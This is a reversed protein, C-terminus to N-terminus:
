SLGTNKKAVAILNKSVIKPRDRRGLEVLYIFNLIKFWVKRLMMWIIYKFRLKWKLRDGFISIESFGGFQLIHNLSWETFGIEHTFSIYRSVSASFFCMNPTTVILKGEGKLADRIAQLYDITKEKPFHEIVQNLTIVDYYGKKMNLFDELDSIHVINPIGYKKSIEVQPAGLEVGEINKYGKERLFYLFYGWGCGVDLIRAEKNEPLLPLFDDEYSEFVRKNVAAFGKQKVDEEKEWRYKDAIGYYNKKTEM